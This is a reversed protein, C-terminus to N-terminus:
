TAWGPGQVLQVGAREDDPLAALMSLTFSVALLRPESQHARKLARWMSSLAPPMDDHRPM